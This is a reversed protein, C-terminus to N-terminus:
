GIGGGTCNHCTSIYIVLRFGVLDVHVWDLEKCKSGQLGDGRLLRVAHKATAQYLVVAHGAVQDLQVGIGEVRHGASVAGDVDVDGAGNKTGDARAGLHRDVDLVVPEAQQRKVAVETGFGHIESSAQLARNRGLGEVQAEGVGDGEESGGARVLEGEGAVGGLM